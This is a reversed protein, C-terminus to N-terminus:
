NDADPAWLIQFTFSDKLGGTSPDYCYSQVSLVACDETTTISSLYMSPYIFNRETYDRLDFTFEEVVREEDADIKVLTITIVTDEAYRSFYGYLGNLYFVDTYSTPNHVYVDMEKIVTITDGVISYLRNIADGEETLIEILIRDDTPTKVHNWLMHAYEKIGSILEKRVLAGDRYVLLYAGRNWQGGFHNMYPISNYGVVYVTGDEGPFFNMPLELGPDSRIPEEFADRGTSYTLFMLERTKESLVQNRLTLLCHIGDEDVYANLKLLWKKDETDVVYRGLLSLGDKERYRYIEIAGEYSNILYLNSDEDALMHTEGSDQYRDMPGSGVPQWGNGDARYLRFIGPQDRDLNETTLLYLNGDKTVLTTNDHSMDGMHAGYEGPFHLNMLVGNGMKGEIRATGQIETVPIIHSDGNGCGLSPLILLMAGLILCFRLILRWGVRRNKYQM